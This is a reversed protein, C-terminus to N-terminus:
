LTRVGPVSMKDEYRVHINKVSVQLNNVIKTILSAILGESQQSDAYNRLSVYSM